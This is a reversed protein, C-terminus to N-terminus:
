GRIEDLRIGYGAVNQKGHKMCQGHGIIYRIPFCQHVSKLTFYALITVAYREFLDLCKM